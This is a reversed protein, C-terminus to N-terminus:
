NDVQIVLHELGLHMEMIELVAAALDPNGKDM